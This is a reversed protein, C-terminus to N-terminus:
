FLFDLVTYSGEKNFWVYFPDLLIIPHSCYLEGSLHFCCSSQTALILTVSVSARKNLAAAAPNWAEWGRLLTARAVRNVGLTFAGMRFDCEHTKCMEKVDKFGRTMYKKLENNVKEEEWMFGQINQAGCFWWILVIYLLNMSNYHLGKVYVIAM